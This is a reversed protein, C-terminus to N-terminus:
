CMGVGAAEGLCWGWGEGLFVDAAGPVQGPSPLHSPVPPEDAQEPQGVYLLARCDAAAAVWEEVSSSASGAGVGGTFCCRLSIVGTTVGRGVGAGAPLFPALPAPALEPATPAKDQALQPVLVVGNHLLSSTPLLIQLAQPSNGIQGPTKIELDACRIQNPARGKQYRKSM